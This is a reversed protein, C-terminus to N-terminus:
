LGYFLVQDQILVRVLYLGRFGASLKWYEAANYLALALLILGYMMPVARFFILRVNTVKLARTRVM